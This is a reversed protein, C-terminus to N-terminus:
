KFIVMCQTGRALARGDPAFLSVSQQTYGDHASDLVVDVTWGALSHGTVPHGTFNLMWTMTSGPAFGKIWSLGIPPPFDAITLLHALTSEGAADRLDVRFRHATDPQGSGPFHGHLLTAQFHQLFRPMLGEIYPMPQAKDDALPSLELAHSVVSERARGFIGVFIALTADGDVIRTEVQRTNKSGRLLRTRLQLTGASIPACLTAQLTRIPLGESMPRMAEAALAAQLGGYVSRGQLWLDGVEATLVDDDRDITGLVSSLDTSTM